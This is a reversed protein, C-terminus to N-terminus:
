YGDLGRIVIFSCERYGYNFFDYLSCILVEVYWLERLRAELAAIEGKLQQISRYDNKSQILHLKEDIQRKRNQLSPIANVLTDRVLKQDSNLKFTFERDYMEIHTERLKEYKEETQNIQSEFRGKTQDVETRLEQNRQQAARFDNEVLNRLDNDLYHRQNNKEELGKYIDNYCREKLQEIYHQTKVSLYEFFHSNIRSVDNELSKMDIQNSQGRQQENVYSSWIETIRQKFNQGMNTIVNYKTSSVNKIFNAILDTNQTAYRDEKGMLNFLHDDNNISVPRLLQNKSTTSYKSHVSTNDNDQRKHAMLDKSRNTDQMSNFRNCQESMNVPRPNYGPAPNTGYQNLHVSPNYQHQQYISVNGQPNPTQNQYNNQYLSQTYNNSSNGSTKYQSHNDFTQALPNPNAMSSQENPKFVQVLGKHHGIEVNSSQSRYVPRTLPSSHFQATNTQDNPRIPLQFATYQM